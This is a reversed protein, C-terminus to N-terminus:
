LFIVTVFGVFDVLWRFSFRFSQLITWLEMSFRSVHGLYDLNDLEFYHYYQVYKKGFM